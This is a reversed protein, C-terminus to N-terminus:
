QCIKLTDEEIVINLVVAPTCPTCGRTCPTNYLLAFLRALCLHEDLVSGDVMEEDIGVCEVVCVQNASDKGSVKYGGDWIGLIALHVM